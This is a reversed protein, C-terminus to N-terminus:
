SAAAKEQFIAAQPNAARYCEVHYRGGYRINVSCGSTTLSEAGAPIERHCLACVYAKRGKGVIKESFYDPTSM